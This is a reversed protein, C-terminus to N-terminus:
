KLNVNLLNNMYSKNWLRRDDCKMINITNQQASLISSYKQRTTSSDCDCWIFNIHRCSHWCIKMKATSLRCAILSNKEEKEEEEDVASRWKSLFPFLFFFDDSCLFTQEIIYYPVAFLFVIDRWGYSSETGCIIFIFYKVNFQRLKSKMEM